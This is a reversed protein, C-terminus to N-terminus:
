TYIIQRLPVHHTIKDVTKDVKTNMMTEVNCKQVGEAKAKKKNQQLYVVVFGSLGSGKREVLTVLSYM